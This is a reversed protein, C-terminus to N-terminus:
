KKYRIQRYTRYVKKAMDYLGNKGKLTAIVKKKLWPKKEPKLTLKVSKGNKPLSDITEAILNFLNYKNMVLDRAKWIEDKYKEYYNGSIVEEIKKLAEEPKTIDIVTLADSSFYKLVSPHGYYIPYAGALYADGLNTTWYDEVYSNDIALYYKYPAIGDWKDRLMNIGAGFNGFQDGYKEKVLKLFAHKLKQGETHNKSSTVNSLLKTKPIDTIAKLQDYTTFMKKYDKPDVGSGSGFWGVHWLHAQQTYIKHPHNLPRQCTIVTAFQDTFDKRYTRIHETEQNIFITNEKPCITTQKEPLDGLVVWWDAKETPQDIIFKYNGWIGLSGPTQRELPVKPYESTLRVTIM